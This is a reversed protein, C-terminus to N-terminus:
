APVFGADRIRAGGLDRLTSLQLNWVDGANRGPLVGNVGFLEGRTIPISTLGAQPIHFLSICHREHVNGTMTREYVRLEGSVKNTSTHNVWKVHFVLQVNPHGGLLWLRMDNKLHGWGETWGNEFVISLMRDTRPVLAWDPQKRSQTYPATFTQFTTDVYPHLHWQEDLTLFNARCMLAFEHVMWGQPVDHIFSPMVKANFVKTVSDYGLRPALQEIIGDECLEDFVQRGIDEPIDTFLINTSETQSLLTTRINNLIKPASLPPTPLSTNSRLARSTGHDDM